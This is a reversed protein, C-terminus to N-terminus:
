IRLELEEAEAERLKELAAHFLAALTENDTQRALREGLSNCVAELKRLRDCVAAHAARRRRAEVDRRTREQAAKRLQEPTPPPGEFLDRPALGLAALIELLSCGRFCYLLVRGDQGAAISLSPNKDRHAPCRAQWKGAGTRRANTSLAFDNATM